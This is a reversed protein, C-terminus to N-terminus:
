SYVCRIAFFIDQVQDIGGTVNVEAIFYAPCQSGAFAAQKSTSALWPMCACVM